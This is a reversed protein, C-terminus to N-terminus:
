KFLIPNITFNFTLIGTKDIPDFHGNADKGTPPAWNPKGNLKVGFFCSKMDFKGESANSINEAIKLLNQLILQNYTEAMNLTYEKEPTTMNFVNMYSKIDKDASIEKMNVKFSTEKNSSMATILFRMGAPGIPNGEVNLNLLSTTLKLGHALCFISKQDICNYSFDIYEINKSNLLLESMRNVPPQKDDYSVGILNNNFHLERLGYCYILGEVIREAPVARLSNWNLKLIELTRNNTLYLNLNEALEMAGPSKGINNGSIDLQDLSCYNRCANIIENIGLDGIEDDPLSLKSLIKMEQLTGALYKAGDFGLKNKSVTL